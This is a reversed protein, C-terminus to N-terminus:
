RRAGPHSSCGGRPAKGTYCDHIWKLQAQIKKQYENTIKETAMLKLLVGEWEKLRAVNKEECKIKEGAELPIRISDALFLLADAYYKRQPGQLYQRLYKEAQPYDKQNFYCVGLLYYVSTENKNLELTKHLYPIAEKWKQRYVLTRGLYHNGRLSQPDRKQYNRFAEEAEYRGQDHMAEGLKFYAPPYNPDIEIAQRLRAEQTKPDCHAGNTLAYINNPDNKLALEFFHCSLAQDAERLLTGMVEYKQPDSVTLMELSLRSTLDPYNMRFVGWLRLGLFDIGAKEARLQPPNNSYLAVIGKVDTWMKSMNYVDFSFNQSGKAKPKLTLRLDVLQDGNLDVQEVKKLDQATEGKKLRLYASIREGTKSDFLALINKKELGKLELNGGLNQLTRWKRQEPRAIGEKELDWVVRTFDSPLFLSDSVNTAM